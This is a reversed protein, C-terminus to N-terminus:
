RSVRWPTCRSRTGPSLLPRGDDAMEAADAVVEVGLDGVPVGYSPVIRRPEWVLLARQTDAIVEGVDAVRVRKGTPEHLSGAHARMWVDM